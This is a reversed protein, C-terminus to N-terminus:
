GLAEGAEAAEDAAALLELKQELHARVGVDEAARDRGSIEVCDAGDAVDQCGAFVILNASAQLVVDALERIAGHFEAQDDEAAFRRDDRNQDAVLGIREVGAVEQELTAVVDLR